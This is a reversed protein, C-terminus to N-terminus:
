NKWFIFGLILGGVLGGISWWLPRSTGVLFLHAILIGVVVLIIPYKGTFQRIVETVTDGVKSNGIAYADWVIIVVAIVRLLWKTIDITTMKM